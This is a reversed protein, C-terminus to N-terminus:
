YARQFHITENKVQPQQKLVREMSETMQKFTEKDAHSAYYDFIRSTKHGLIKMGIAKSVGKEALNKALLHRFGHYVIGRTKRAQEDIGIKELMKNFDKGIQRNNYPIKPNKGPFLLSDMSLLGLEKIYAMIEAYLDTLIPIERIEQNKTCKLNSKKGWSHQISIRNEYIDCVRLARVEGMRLGTNYAILVAMKSRISQWELSFLRDVEERELIGRKGTKGGARLVSDFDFRQIIKKRKAFKLAVTAVNRASNVTSAVLNKDKKLYIVFKQLAEEDIQSLLTNQFYPRYYRNVAEQMEDSHEAHPEKGMTEQERFYESTNFDWFQYLYDCFLTKKTINNTQPSDPLGNALWGQAVANAKKEDSTGTSRDIQRGTLPDFFIVHFSGGIKRQRLYYSQRM